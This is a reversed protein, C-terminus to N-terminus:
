ESLAELALGLAELVMAADKISAREMPSHPSIITSGISAMQLAPCVAHFRACELGAHIVANVLPKGAVKEWASSLAKVLPSDSPSLWCDHRNRFEVEAGALAACSSILSMAGELGEDTLSRPMLLLSAADDSIRVSGLNCSTEVLTRAEDHFRLAASPLANILDLLVSTCESSLASSSAAAETVEVKISPDAGLYEDAVRRAASDLASKFNEISESPVNVVVTCSSPISNRARGGELSAIFFECDDQVALLAQAAAKIANARGLAIDSGSHGGRFGTFSIKLATCGPTAVRDLELRVDADCSGACGTFVYGSDESDLNILCSADKLDDKTIALAGKMTTEEEVTFIATISGHKLNRDDLIALITCAGLGDDAGLSTGRAKIWGDEAYADIGDKLFDHEVGSAAAPVMDLHAQLVVGPASERGSSAPANIIVNGAGDRRCPLSRERAFDMVWAAAADEHGSIRPIALLKAFRGFLAKPELSSISSQAM